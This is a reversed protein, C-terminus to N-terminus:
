TPRSPLSPTGDFTLSPFKCRFDAYVAIQRFSRPKAESKHRVTVVQDFGRRRCFELVNHLPGEVRLHKTIPVDGSMRGLKELGRERSETKVKIWVEQRLLEQAPSTWSRHVLALPRLVAQRQDYAARNSSPSEPLALSFVKLLLQPPLSHISMSPFIAPSQTARVSLLLQKRVFHSQHAM